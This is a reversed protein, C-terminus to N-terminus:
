KNATHHTSSNSTTICCCCNRTLHIARLKTEHRLEGKTQLECLGFILLLGKETPASLPASNYLLLGLAFRLIATSRRLTATAV